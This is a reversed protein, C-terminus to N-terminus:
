YERKKLMQARPDRLAQFFDIISNLKDQQGLAKFRRGAAFYTDLAQETKGQTYYVNALEGLANADGAYQALYAAYHKEAQAFDRQWFAARAQELLENTGVQHSSEAPESVPKEIAKSVPEIQQQGLLWPRFIDTNAPEAVPEQEKQGPAPTEVQPIDEVPQKTAPKDCCLLSGRAFFAVLVFGLLTLFILHNALVGLLTALLKGM